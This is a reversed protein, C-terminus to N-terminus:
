EEILMYSKLENKEIDEAILDLMKDFMVRLVDSDFNPLFYSLSKTSVYKKNKLLCYAIVMSYSILENPEVGRPNIHYPAKEKVLVYYNSTYQVEESIDKAKSLKLNMKLSKLMKKFQQMTKTFQFSSEGTLENFIEYTMEKEDMMYIFIQLLNQCAKTNYKTQYIM